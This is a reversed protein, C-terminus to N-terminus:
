ASPARTTAWIWFWPAAQVRGRLIADPDAYTSSGADPRDQAAWVRRRDMELFGATAATVWDRMLDEVDLASRLRPGPLEIGLDRCAQVAEAPRLVGSATLTKGQGVWDALNRARTLATCSLAADTIESSILVSSPNEM